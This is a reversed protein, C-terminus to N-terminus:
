KFSFIRTFQEFDVIYRTHGAYVICSRRSMHPDQLNSSFDVDWYLVAYHAYQSFRAYQSRVKKTQDYDVLDERPVKQKIMLTASM